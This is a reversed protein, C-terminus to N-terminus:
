RGSVASLVFAVVPAVMADVTEADLDRQGPPLNLALMTVAGYLSQMLVDTPDEASLEGRAVAREVVRQAAEGHRAGVESAFRQETAASVADVAIRLTAWGLPDLYHRLLNSALQALDDPLNGNDVEEISSSRALVSDALLTDKDSWRLYLTSKGVGARRAVGNLTFGSWGHEAYELIAAEM